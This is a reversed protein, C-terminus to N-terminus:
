SNEIRARVQAEHEATADGLERLSEGSEDMAIEVLERALRAMRPNKPINALDLTTGYGYPYGEGQGFQVTVTPSEAGGVKSYVFGVKAEEHLVTLSLSLTLHTPRVVSGDDDGGALSRVVNPGGGAASTAFRDYSFSDVICLLGQNYGQMLGLHGIGANLIEIRLVPPAVLTGTGLQNFTTDQYVPYMFKILDQFAALNIQPNPSSALNMEWELNITRGTGQYTAIPDMRGYVEERRFSPRYNDDFSLLAGPIEINKNLAVYTVSLLDPNYMDTDGGAGVQGDAMRIAVTAVIDMLYEIDSAEVSSEAFSHALYLDHVSMKAKILRSQGSTIAGHIAEARPNGSIRGLLAVIDVEQTRYDAV